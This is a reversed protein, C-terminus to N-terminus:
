YGSSKVGESVTDGVPSISVVRGASIVQQQGGAKYTYTNNAENFKPKGLVTFSQGNNLTMQYKICGSTLTCVVLLALLSFRKM